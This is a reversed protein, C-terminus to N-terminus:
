NNPVMAQTQAPEKEPGEEALLPRGVRTAWINDAAGRNSVFFLRGDKGWTPQLNVYSDNSLNMRGTGDANIVWLDSSEPRVRPDNGPNVVTVFALQRGDPSWAPTIVAANTSVAIETPQSAEGNEYDMTWLSFWRTGRFRARQFAIKKGTPSFEPFLGYGIYKKNVPNAAELVALEWQGSQEGLSCYVIFKGDPSWNPHLDQSPGSTIQVAKGGSIPKIYLDWSGSRDSCFAVLKGDPSIAPMTDNAADTTLQTIATGEIRKMYLDSTPRHRTSAYILWKGTPDVDVDFDAGERTFSVQRLNDLADGPMTKPSGPMEGYLNMTGVYRGQSAAPASVTRVFAPTPRPNVDTVPSASAQPRIPEIPQPDNAYRSCGAVALVVLVSVFVCMKRQM